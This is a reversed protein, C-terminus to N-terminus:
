VDTARRKPNEADAAAPKEAVVCSLTALPHPNLSPPSTFDHTLIYTSGERCTPEMARFPHPREPNEADAAAPKEAVVCRM